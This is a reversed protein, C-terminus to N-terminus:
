LLRYFSDVVEMGTYNPGAQDNAGIYEFTSQMKKTGEIKLLKTSSHYRIKEQKFYKKWYADSNPQNALKLNALDLNGMLLGDTKLATAAKKLLGIKDGLYHLGHVITILDYQQTPQWDSLNTMTLKLNEIGHANSFFNVLDIGELQINLNLQQNQFYTAAQILANGEGCCLDLWRIPAQGVRNELFEIPNLQIDKEYSNIGTAKRQRNMRNNAVIASNALTRDNILKLM